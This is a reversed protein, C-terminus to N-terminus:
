PHCESKHISYHAKQCEKGCYLIKKCKSCLKLSGINGKHCNACCNLNYLERLGASYKCIEYANDNVGLLSKEIYEGVKCGREHLNRAIEAKMSKRLEDLILRLSPIKNSVTYFSDIFSTIMCQEYEKRVSHLGFWESLNLLFRFAHLILMQFWKNSIYNAYNSKLVAEFLNEIFKVMIGSIMLTYSNLRLPVLNAFYRLLLAIKKVETEQKLFEDFSCRIIYTNLKIAHQAFCDISSALTTDDLEYEFTKTGKLLQQTHIDLLYKTSRCMVLIAHTIPSVSGVCFECSWGSNPFMHDFSGSIYPLLVGSFQNGMICVGTEQKSSLVELTKSINKLSEQKSEYTSESKSKNQVISLDQIDKESFIGHHICIKTYDALLACRM